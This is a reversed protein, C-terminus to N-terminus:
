LTPARYEEGRTRCAGYLLLRQTAGSNLVELPMHNGAVDWNLTGRLSPSLDKFASRIIEQNLSPRKTRKSLTHLFQGESEFIIKAAQSEALDLSYKICTANIPWPSISASPDPAAAM